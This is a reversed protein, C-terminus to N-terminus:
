YLTLLSELGMYLLLSNRPELGMYLLLSNLSTGIWLLSNVSTGIQTCCYLTLLSELGTHLLLSNVATGTGHVAATFLQPELRM